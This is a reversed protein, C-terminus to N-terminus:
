PSGPALKDGLAILLNEETLLDLERAEELFPSVDDRIRKWDERGKPYGRTLVAHLKGSLSSPVM